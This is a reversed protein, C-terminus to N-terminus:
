GDWLVLEVRYAGPPNQQLDLLSALTRATETAQELSLGSVVHSWVKKRDRVYIEVGRTRSCNLSIKM